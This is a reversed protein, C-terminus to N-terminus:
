KIVAGIYLERDPFNEQVNQNETNVRYIGDLKFYIKTGPPDSKLKNGLSIPIGKTADKGSGNFSAIKTPAGLSRQVLVDIKSIRYRADKPLLSRFDADPQVKVICNSKKSIPTAGNYVKGNVLLEISPKPPKIVKYHRDTKFPNGNPQDAILSLVCTRGSPVIMFRRNDSNSPVVKANSAKVSPNALGEPLDLFITNGCKYYMNM